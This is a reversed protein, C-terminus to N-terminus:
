RRSWFAPIGFMRTSDIVVIVGTTEGCTKDRVLTHHIDALLQVCDDTTRLKEAAERALRILADAAQSGGSIGGAGDAVVIIMREGM